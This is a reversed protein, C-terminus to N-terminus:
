DQEDDEIEALRKLLDLHERWYTEFPQFWDRAIAHLPEPRLHYIRSRGVEEVQVLRAERLVRLHNSVAQPTLPELAGAIAGSRLPGRQRLLQLVARRTPDALASFLEDRELEADAAASGQYATTSETM